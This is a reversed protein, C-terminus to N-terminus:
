EKFEHRGSQTRSRIPGVLQEAQTLGTDSVLWRDVVPRRHVPSRTMNRLPGHLREYRAVDQTGYRWTLPDNPAPRWGLVEQWVRPPHVEVRAHHLRSRGGVFYGSVPVPGGLTNPEFASRIWSLFTRGSPCTPPDGLTLIGDDPYTEHWYQLVYDWGGDCFVVRASFVRWGAPVDLARAVETLRGEMGAAPGESRYGDDPPPWVNGASRRPPDRQLWPEDNDLVAQALRVLRPATCDAPTLRPTIVRGVAAEVHLEHCIIDNYRRLVRPRDEPTTERALLLSEAVAGGLHSFDCGCEYLDNLVAAAASHRDSFRSHGLVQGTNYLPWGSSATVIPRGPPQAASPPFEPRPQGLADAWRCLVVWSQLRETLSGERLLGDLRPVLPALAAPHRAAWCEAAHLLWYTRWEDAPDAFLDAAAAPDHDVLAHAGELAATLAEASRSSLLVRLPRVAVERWGIPRPNPESSPGGDDPGPPPVAAWLVHMELQSDLGELLEELGRSTSRALSVALLNPGAAHLHYSEPGGADRGVARVLQWLHDDGVFRAIQDLSEPVESFGNEWSGGIGTGVAALLRSTRDRGGDDVGALERVAAAATTLTVRGTAALEDEAAATASPPPGPPSPATPREDPPRDLSGSRTTRALADVLAQKQDARAPVALLGDRMGRLAANDGEDHWYSLALAAAWVYPWEAPPPPRGDAVAATVGDVLLVRARDHWGPDTLMGPEALAWWEGAGCAVAAGAVAVRVDEDFRNDGGQRSCTDCLARLRRGAPLCAPPDVRAARRFWDLVPSFGYEKHARYGVKLWAVRRRAQDALAREGLADALPALDRVIHNTEDHSLGWAEGAPGVWHELWRRQLDRRGHQGLAAWISPRPYDIPYAEAAREARSRAVDAHRGGLTLCVRVLDTALRGAARKPSRWNGATVPGWLADFAEGVQEPTAWGGPDQESSRIVGEVRGLLAAVRLVALTAARQEARRNEPDYVGYVSAAIDRADLGVRQCGTAYAAALYTDLADDENTSWRTNGSLGYDPLALVDLWGPNDADAGSRLAWAAAEVRTHGALGGRYGSLRGLLDRVLLWRERAAVARLAVDWADLYRPLRGAFLEDATAADGAEARAAAYGREFAWRADPAPPDDSDGFDPCWGARGCAAGLRNLAEAAHHDLRVEDEAAHPDVVGSMGGLVRGLDLGGLWRRLLAAARGPEGRESLAIADRALTLLHDVAWESVPRVAAESPLFPPLDPQTTGFGDNTAEFYSLRELTQVACAVPVVVSWDGADPLRRVAELGERHLQDLEVGVAGGEVVWRATYHRPWEAARGAMDLLDLLHLHAATRDGDSSLYHDALQAAARRQRPPSLGARRGALFVRIDNHRVRYGDGGHTLLPGLADFVREWWTASRGSTAFAAALSDPTVGRRAISLVVVLGDDADEAGGTQHLASTWISRYYAALGDALRRDQLRLTLADVSEAHEAEAVAFVTALTDGQAHSHILRAAGEASEAPLRSPAAQYLARVDDLELGPLAIRRVGDHPSVLWAPYVSDYAAAPQGAVLLRINQGTLEDPGPLSDFFEAARQPNTQGARAAHDIGDVVIVFPRGAERGPHSALRLVHGRAARWDLLDNRLPVQLERLRGTLGVRLQTLLSFWLEAPRVRSADAAIFPANPRIPEFCFFRLGVLAAFPRDPRRNTLWSVLSTKGAGPEASLFFVPEASPSYLDRELDEAAPLRGPFFPEPPPPAPALEGRQPPLTLERCLTEATIPPGGTTWTRLSRHLADVLPAVRAEDVGFIGALATTVRRVVDDTDPRGARIDLSRLFRLREDDTGGALAGLWEKTWATEWEAPPKIDALTQAQPLAESLWTLFDALPPRRVGADSRGAHEGALRNTHLICRCTERGTVLSRWSTFLTGLLSESEGAALDGFTLRDGDRSHKVQYLRSKGGKLRVVVDDWGKVGSAQLVVSETPSDPRLLDIVEEVGVLWEYWYPHAQGSTPSSM